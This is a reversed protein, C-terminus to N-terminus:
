KLKRKKSKRKMEPNGDDDDEEEDDNKLSKRIRKLEDLAEGLINKTEKLEQEISKFKEKTEKLETKTRESEVKLRQFEIKKNAKLFKVIESHYSGAKAVDLPTEHKTGLTQDVGIEVLFKVTEIRGDQCAFFFATRGETDRADKDFGISLLFRAMEFQGSEAAMMFMTKWNQYLINIDEGISILYKLVPLNGGFVAKAIPLMDFEDQISLLSKSGKELLFQVIEVTSSSCACHFANMGFSYTEDISAGNNVLFKVIELNGFIEQKQLSCAFMLPSYQYNLGGIDSGISVLYQVLELNGVSCALALYSQEMSFDVSLYPYGISVLYKVVDVKQHTCALQVPNEDKCDVGMSVFLKLIDLNGGIVSCCFICRGNRSHPSDPNAGKSILYKVVDLHGNEAAISLPISLYDNPLLNQQFFSNPKFFDNEYFEVIFKVFKLNGLECATNLPSFDNNPIRIDAGIWMLFKLSDFDDRKIAYITATNGFQDQFNCDCGIEILFKLTEIQGM